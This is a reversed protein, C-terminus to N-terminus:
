TMPLISTDGKKSEKKEKLMSSNSSFSFCFPPEEKKTISSPSDFDEYHSFFLSHPLRKKRWLRTRKAYFFLFRGRKKRSRLGANSKKEGGEPGPPPRCFCGRKKPVVAVEQSKKKGKGGAVGGIFPICTKGKERGGTSALGRDDGAGKEGRKACRCRRGHFVSRTLTPDRKERRAGERGRGVRPGESEKREIGPVGISLLHFPTRTLTTGKEGKGKCRLPRVPSEKERDARFFLFRDGTGRGRKKEEKKVPHKPKKAKKTKEPSDKVERRERARTPLVFINTLPPARGKKKKRFTIVRDKKKEKEPSNTM